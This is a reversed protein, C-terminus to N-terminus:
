RHGGEPSGVYREVELFRLLNTIELLQLVSESLHCLVLRANRAGLSQSCGVIVRLGSSDIFSVESLDLIVRGVRPDEELLSLAARLQPATHPDLEGKVIVKAENIELNSVEVWFARKSYMDRSRWNGM